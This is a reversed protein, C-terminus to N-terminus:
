STSGPGKRDLLVDGADLDGMGFHRRYLRETPTNREVIMITGRLAPMLKLQEDMCGLMWVALGKGRHEEVIYIDNVYVVTVDDTIWRGLGILRPESDQSGEADEFM